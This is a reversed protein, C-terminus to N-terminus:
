EMKVKEMEKKSLCVMAYGKDEGEGIHSIWIYTGYIYKRFNLFWEDGDSDSLLFTYDRKNGTHLTVNYTKGDLSVTDASVSLTDEGLVYTGKYKEFAKDKIQASAAIGFFLLFLVTITKKM